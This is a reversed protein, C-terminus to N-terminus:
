FTCWYFVLLATSLNRPLESVLEKSIRDGCEQFNHGPCPAGVEHLVWEYTDMDRYFISVIVSGCERGSGRMDCTTSCLTRSPQGSAMGSADRMEARCGNVDAFFSGAAEHASVIFVAYEIEKPLEKIRLLIREDDGSSPIM